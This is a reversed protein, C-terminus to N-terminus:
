LHRYGMDGDLNTLHWQSRNTPMEGTQDHLWFPASGRFAYGSDRLAATFSPNQALTSILACGEGRFFTELQRLVCRWIKPSNGLFSVHLLRGIRINNRMQTGCLAFGHDGQERSIVFARTNMVPCELWWEIKKREHSNVVCEQRSQNCAVGDPRYEVLIPAMREASFCFPSAGRLSNSSAIVTRALRRFSSGAMLRFYQSPEIVKHYLQMDFPQTFRLLPLLEQSAYSGGYEFCFDADQKIKNRLQVGVAGTIGPEVIWHSGIVGTYSHMGFEYRGRFYGIHGVVRGKQEAVYSRYGSGSISDRFLWLLLAGSM